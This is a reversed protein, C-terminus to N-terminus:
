LKMTLPSTIENLNSEIIRLIMKQHDDLETKRIKYFLLEILKKINILLNDKLLIRGGMRKELLVKMSANLVRLSKTKIELDNTREIVSRELEDHAKQLQIKSEKLRREMDKKYLAFEIASKLERNQFPKVIYGYSEAQKAREIIKDESYATLFIVPIDLASKVIEAVQIGDLKGPIMINTLILDPRLDRASEVAEEGSYAVGAVDFGMSKLRQQLRLAIVAEDEVIMIKNMRKQM